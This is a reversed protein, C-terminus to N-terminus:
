YLNPPEDKVIGASWLRALLESHPVTDFAKRIDLYITDVQTKHDLSQFVFSLFTLLQQVTSRKKVFGFQSSSIVNTTLFDISKDFILIINLQYLLEITRELSLVIYYHKKLFVFQIEM